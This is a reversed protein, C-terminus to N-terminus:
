WYGLVNFLSAIKTVSAVCNQTVAPEVSIKLDTCDLSNPGYYPDLHNNEVGQDNEEYTVNKCCEKRTIQVFNQLDHLPPVYQRWFIILYTRNRCGYKWRKYGAEFGFVDEM